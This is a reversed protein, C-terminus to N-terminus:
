RSAETTKPPLPAFFGIILMLLGVVLFSVIRGITGAGSLDIIFLKFVVMALLVAGALWIRRKGKKAGGITMAMALISWLAAIATQFVTSAFLADLDYSVGSFFHTCRATVVNLWLFLLAAALWGTFIGALLKSETAPQQGARHVIRLGLLLILALEALELPNFVPIYALPTPSGNQSFTFLCGLLLVLLPVGSGLGHYTSAWRTVPWTLRNGRFELVFLLAIPVLGWCAMTWAEALHPITDVQWAVQFTLVFLLLWLTLAHWAPLIREPLETACRFLLGYQLCFALPWAVWGYDALLSDSGWSLLRSPVTLIMIPLLLLLALHLQLWRLRRAALACLLSTSCTFLLIAAPLSRSLLHRDLDRVGGFYWWILGWALLFLPLKTEWPSSESQNTALQYGSFLAALAILGCGLFFQNGFLLSDIPYVAKDVFTLAAGMQLLLGFLRALKRQQRVGVWIMAAGELAWTATTWQHDLGLPIALSGFVVGLALFAETLLRMEHAMRDWLLRALSIYLLGLALVSLAMGYRFDRVLYFQLGTAVIPLGFVLPGDIFGRLQLPQRLAFLVSIAAYMLFFLLLFPETTAFFQPQYASAGWLAAIGFTFVFGVLNLERWAKFWAIGLIGSNLLAYYSFLLIHSGSGTSMLVPALFGGISGSVALGRSEQLVALTCSLAVLSIMVVLALPLPLLHYLKAAAFVVLYLVGIGCGELGLGYGKHTRRLFWGIVLLALGGGAVGILRFEIPILNRQAAYKLLFAVGFFLVVIGIKLVPNGSTFYSLVPAILDLLRKETATHVVPVQPYRQGLHVAAQERARLPAKAVSPEPPTGQSPRALNGEGVPSHEMGAAEGAQQQKKELMSIRRRLAFVEIVLFAVVGTVIGNIPNYPYISMGALVALIVAPISLTKSMM